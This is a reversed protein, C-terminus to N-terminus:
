SRVELVAIWNVCETEDLRNPFGQNAPHILVRMESGKSEQHAVLKVPLGDATSTRIHYGFMDHQGNLVIHNHLVNMANM